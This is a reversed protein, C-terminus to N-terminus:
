HQELTTIRKAHNELAADHDDLRRTVSEHIEGLRRNIHELTAGYGEAARQVLDRLEEVQLTSQAELRDFRGDMADFRRDMADFRQDVAEFRQDSSASLADLKREVNGLRDQM